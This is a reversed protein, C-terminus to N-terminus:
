WAGSSPKPFRGFEQRFTTKTRIEWNKHQRIADRTQPSAVRSLLLFKEDASVKDEAVTTHVKQPGFEQARKCQYTHVKGNPFEAKIDIGDQAHGSKGARHVKADPYLAQILTGCFREFTEPSLADVPFPQDFSVAVTAPTYYAAQLLANVDTDLAAALDAM